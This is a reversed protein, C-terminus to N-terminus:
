KVLTGLYWPARTGPTLAEFDVVEGGRGGVMGGVVAGVVAGVM